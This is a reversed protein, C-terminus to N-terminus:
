RQEEDEDHAGHHHHEVVRLDAGDHLVAAAHDTREEGACAEDPPM